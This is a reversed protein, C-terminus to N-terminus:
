GGAFQPGLLRSLVELMARDSGAYLVIVRESHFLHPTGLYYIRQGADRLSGDPAFKRTDVEAIARADGGLDTDDYWFSNVEIPAAIRVPTRIDTVTLVTGHGRLPLATSRETPEVRFGDCRLADVLAVHDRVPAGCEHSTVNPVSSRVVLVAVGIGCAVLLVALAVARTM